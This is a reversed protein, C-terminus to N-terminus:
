YFQKNWPPAYFRILDEEYAEAIESNSIYVATFSFHAQDVRKLGLQQEIETRLSTSFGIYATYRTGSGPLYLFAYCGVRDDVRDTEDIEATNVRGAIPVSRERPNVWGQWENAYAGIEGRHDTLNALFRSVTGGDQRLGM